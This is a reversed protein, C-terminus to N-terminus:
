TPEQEPSQELRERPGPTPPPANRWTGAAAAPSMPPPAHRWADASATLDEELAPAVAIPAASSSTASHAGPDTPAPAVQSWADSVPPVPAEGFPNAVPPTAREPGVNCSPPSWSLESPQVATPPQAPVHWSAEAVPPRWPANATPRSPRALRRVQESVSRVLDRPWPEGARIAVVVQPVTVLALLVLSPVLLSAPADPVGVWAARDDTMWYRPSAAAATLPVAVLVIPLIERQRLWFERATTLQQARSSALCLLGFAVTPILLLWWGSGGAFSVLSEVDPRRAGIVGAEVGPTWVLSFAILNPGFGSGAIAATPLLEPRFGERIALMIASGAGLLMSTGIGVWLTRALSRRTALWATGWTLVTFLVSSVPLWSVQATAFSTPDYIRIAGLAISTAAHTATTTLIGVVYTRWSPRQLWRAILLGSLLPLAFALGSFGSTSVNVFDGELRGGLVAGLALLLGPLAEAPAVAAREGFWAAAWLAVGAACAVLGPLLGLCMPKLWWRRAGDRRTEEVSPALFAV